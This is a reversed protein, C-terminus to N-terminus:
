HRYMARLRHDQLKSSTQYLRNISYISVVPDLLRDGVKEGNLWLEFYGIGCIRVEAKKCKGVKVERRFFPAPLVESQWNVCCKGPIGIWMTSM